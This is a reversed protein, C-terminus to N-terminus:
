ISLHLYIQCIKTLNSVERNEQILWAEFGTHFFANGAGWALSGLTL